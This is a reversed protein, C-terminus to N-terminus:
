SNATDIRGQGPASTVNEFARQLRPKIGAFKTETSYQRGVEVNAWVLQIPQLDSLYPPTFVDHEKARVKEVIVPIVNTEIHKSLIKWIIAKTTNDPIDLAYEKMASIM